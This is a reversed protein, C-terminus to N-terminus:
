RLWIIWAFIGALAWLLYRQIHGSQVRRIRRGGWAFLGAIGNVLGDIGRRDTFVALPALVQTVGQGIGNVLGDVIYTDWWALARSLALGPLAVLREYGTSIYLQEESLRRIWHPVTVGARGRGYRLYGLLLGGFVLPLSVWAVPAHSTLPEYEPVKFLIWSGEGEIPNLSFLLWLSGLALIALPVQMLLGPDHLSSNEWKDTKGGFILYAHRAMYLATIGATVFALILIIGYIGGQTEAAQWIGLLVSEKSLFGSTFPVGSLALMPILYLAFTFPMKKRLGGMNRLDQADAGKLGAHHLQHIVAGASLFLACKFFAHTFLHFLAMQPAGAGIAIVMYGLQSITSYALVRKIDQQALASFAALLATIAGIFSIVARADPSLFVYTRALLYVGAAVMTAAHILSSVPTPGEMADPLWVQLPFQASKGLAGGFILLGTLTFYFGEPPSTHYVEALAALDLTGYRALLLAIGLLFAM